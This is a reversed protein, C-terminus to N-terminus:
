IVTAEYIDFLIQSKPSKHSKNSPFSNNYLEFKTSIYIYPFM